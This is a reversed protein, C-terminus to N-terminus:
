QRAGPLWSELPEGARCSGKARLVTAGIMAEHDKRFAAPSWGREVVLHRWVDIHILSWCLDAARTASLGRALHGGMALRELPTRYPTHLGGIM